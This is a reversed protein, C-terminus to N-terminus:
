STESNSPQALTLSLIHFMGGDTVTGTGNYAVSSHYLMETMISIDSSPIKGMQLISYGSYSFSSMNISSCGSSSTLSSILSSNTPATVNYNTVQMTVNGFTATTQNIENLVPQAHILDTEFTSYVFPLEFFIMLEGGVQSAQSGSINYGGISLLTVNWSPDFYITGSENESFGLFALSLDLSVLTFNTGNITRAGILSYSGDIVESLNANTTSGPVNGASSVSTNFFVSMESFNGFLNRTMSPPFATSLLNTIGTSNLSESCNTSTETIITSFLTTTFSTSSNQIM